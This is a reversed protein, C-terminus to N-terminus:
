VCMRAQSKAHGGEEVCTVCIPVLEGYVVWQINPADTLPIPNACMCCGDETLEMWRQKSIMQRHPGVVSLETREVLRAAEDVEGKPSVDCCDDDGEIADPEIGEYIQLAEETFGYDPVFTHPSANFNIVQCIIEVEDCDLKRASVPSVEWAQIRTLDIEKAPVGYVVAPIAAGGVTGRVVGVRGKKDPASHIVKNPVFLMLDDPCLSEQELTEYICESLGKPPVNRGQPAVKTAVKTPAPLALAPQAPGVVHAPRGSGSRQWRNEERESYGACEGWGHYGTNNTFKPIYLDLKRVVPTMNKANARWTFLHGADPQIYTKISINLRSALWRLMDVESAIYVTDNGYTVGFHLPRRYNRIINVSADRSDHWVLAFAGDLQSIVNDVTDNALAHAIAHSDVDFERESGDGPLESHGALTGNHVLTIPGDVFPHTNEVSVSGLTASRNHGIVAMYGSMSELIPQAVKDKIFSPGIATGKAWGATQDELADDAKGAQKPVAFMGTGDRGRLTGVFLAQEM